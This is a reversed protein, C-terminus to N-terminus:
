VSRRLVVTAPILVHQADERGEIRSLLLDSARTGLAQPDQNVSSLSVSPLRAVSCDDYGIVALDSPPEPFDRRNRM